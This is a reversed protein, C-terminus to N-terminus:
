GSVEGSEGPLQITFVSGEGESSEASITGGHMEVINRVISLGLGTGSVEYTLSSDVRYFKDFIQPLARAPIGVGTDKVVIIVDEQETRLVSINVSGGSRNYKISNSLLNMVVQSMMERDCHGILEKPADFGITVGKESAWPKVVHIARDIMEVFDCKQIDLEVRGSEIRSLDLLNSILRTLRDTEESIVGLFERQVERDDDDVTDLLTETYAKISSLPTRLEHSVNSILETKIRDVKKLEELEMTESIDHCVIIIGSVRGKEDRLLSTNFGIPVGMPGVLLNDLNFDSARGDALSDIVLNDLKTASRHNLVTKYHKGMIEDASVGLLEEAPKSFTTVRGEMDLVMLGSTMSEYVNRMYNQMQSLNSNKEEMERYLLSNSIAVAAQSAMIGLLELDQHRYDGEAKASEIVIAAVPRNGAILPVIVHSSTKATHVLSLDDDEGSMDPIVIPHRKSVAWDLLGENLLNLIKQSFRPTLCRSTEIRYTGTSASRLLIACADFDMVNAVLRVVVELVQSLEFEVSITESLQALTHFVEDFSSKLDNNIKELMEMRSVLDSIRETNDM